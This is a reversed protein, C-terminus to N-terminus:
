SQVSQLTVTATGSTHASRKVKVKSYGAPDLKFIGATTATTAATGSNQDTARIAVFNTGDVSGEFQHTATFTGTIQVLLAESKGVDVEVVLEDNLAALDKQARM